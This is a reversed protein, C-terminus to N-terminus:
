LPRHLLRMAYSRSAVEDNTDEGTNTKENIAYFLLRITARDVTDSSVVTPSEYKAHPVCVNKRVANPPPSYFVAHLDLLQSRPM